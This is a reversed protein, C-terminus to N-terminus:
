PVASWAVRMEKVSPVRFMVTGPPPTTAVTLAAVPSMKAVGVPTAASSAAVAFKPEPTVIAEVSIVIRRFVKSVRM